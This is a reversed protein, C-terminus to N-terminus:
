FLFSALSNQYMWNIISCIFETSKKTPTEGFISGKFVVQKTSMDSQITFSSKSQIFILLLNKNSKQCNFKKCKLM